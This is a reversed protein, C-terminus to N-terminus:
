DHQRALFPGIALGDLGARQFSDVADAPTCVIPEEHMNFSTNLLSPRGSKAAYAALIKHLGPNTEADVIQARATGDVHVVAPCLDRLRETADFTITMFRAARDAGAISTYCECAREVPTAPAFPMFPSRGLATNLKDCVAADEASVLISRNGLARPGYEMRGAFRALVKGAALQEAAAEEVDDPREYPLGAAKLARVIEDDRFEPGLFVHELFAPEPEALALAAGAALGGDGMQPFVYVNDVQPLALILQNLRVNAFLGGALAVNRLGTREAWQAITDVILAESHTQLWAAVDEKSYRELQRLLPRAALGFRIASRFGDGDRQIPFPVDVNASDGRASLGLVKGEDRFPIFGLHTTILAYFVPISHRPGIAHLREIKRGECRSVCFSVGDGVGDVTISLCPDFGSCYYAGAAHCLHHDFIHIPKHRLTAPLDRRVVWPIFFREGRGIWSKPTLDNIGSRFQVFDAVWSRWTPNPSYFLGEELKFRRQLVRFLRFYLQPTLVGALGIADVDAADAGAIRLAEEISRHPFSGQMKARTFREENVAAVIRGDQVVCAGTDHAGDFIGLILM